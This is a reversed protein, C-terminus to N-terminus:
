LLRGVSHLAGWYVMYGEDQLRQRLVEAHEADRTEVVCKVQVSFVDSELWAREHFIDKLSVGISALIGTLRAIGGPRDSVTVVFRCLRGDAAMGREIVRGLVTTDINGGCLPVIVRKGRLEPLLGAICAALGTAGGGEVVAKELEVLHLVALAIYKESVTVIQDVRTRCIEFANSGVCPVALGDALTSQADITVPKGAKMAATLSACREPEVGIVKVEPRLTKVALAIGALLGGGGVPVVIADFDELQEMIELGMTGQGAIINPHDYGNVYTLGRSEVLTMAHDKCQLIHEGFLIVEAGFERCKSVKMLPANQPMVVTVPVNLTQGHYALALAHNGASAAIVGVRRQDPTLLKLANRAGREKFSGTQLLFDKKFYIEMGTMRIMGDHSRDCPTRPIIDRIRFAATSVDEFTPLKTAQTPEPAARLNDSM